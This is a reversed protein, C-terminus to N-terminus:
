VRVRARAGLVADRAVAWSVLVAQLALAAVRVVVRVAVAPARAPGLTAPLCRAIGVAARAWVALKAVKVATAGSITLLARGKALRGGAISITQWVVARYIAM